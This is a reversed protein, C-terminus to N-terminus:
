DVLLFETRLNAEMEGINILGDHPYKRVNNDAQITAVRFKSNPFFLQAL